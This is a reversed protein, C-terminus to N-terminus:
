WGDILVAHVERPGHVGRILVQEIDATRSTGSVFVASRGAAYGPAAPRAALGSLVEELTEVVQGRSYLAIHIPPALSALQAGEMSSTLVLSGSEVLAFDVGTVGAAALFCRERYTAEASAAAGPGAAAPWSWAPVGLSGLVEAVGLKALLPNRSLVVGDAPNQRLVAAMLRALEDRSRVRHASAGVKGLEEEFREVLAEPAVPPLVRGLDPWSALGPASGPEGSASRLARSIRDLIERRTAM